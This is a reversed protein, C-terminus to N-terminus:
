KEGCKEGSGIWLICLWLVRTGYVFTSYRHSCFHSIPGVSRDLLMKLSSGNLKFYEM